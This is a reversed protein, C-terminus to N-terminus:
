LVQDQQVSQYVTQSRGNWWRAFINLTTTIGSLVIVSVTGWRFGVKDYLVGAVSPGIGNGLAYSASWLGSVISFTTLDEEYGNIKLVSSLLCSYSSVVVAASGVGQIALSGVTLTLSPSIHLSPVPGVLLFSFMIIILGIISVTWPNIRTDTVWGTILSCITYTCSWALFCLGISTMHLSFTELYLELLSELYGIAFSASAASLLAILVNGNRLLPLMRSSQPQSSQDKANETLPQIIPLCILGTAVTFSGSVFFPLLFGGYDYLLAGLFPGMMYGAGFTAYVSGSRNPFSALLLALMSNWLAAGGVGELARLIYALVLFPITQEIFTLFGFSLACASTLLLGFRFLNGVGVKAVIKGTFPSTLVIALHIIGFVGCCQTATAGKLAGEKPFFPAQISEIVGTCFSLASLSTVLPINGPM